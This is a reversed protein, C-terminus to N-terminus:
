YCLISLLCFNAQNVCVTRYVVSCYVLTPLTCMSKVFIGKYLINHVCQLTLISPLLDACSMSHSSYTAMKHVKDPTQELFSSLYEMLKSLLEEQLCQEIWPHSSGLELLDDLIRGIWGCVVNTQNKPCLTVSYEVLEVM